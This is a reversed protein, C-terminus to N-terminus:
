VTGGWVSNSGYLVLSLTATAPGEGGCTIMFVVRVELRGRGCPLIVEIFTISKYHQLLNLSCFMVVSKSVVDPLM